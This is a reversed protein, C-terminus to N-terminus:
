HVSDDDPPQAPALEPAVLGLAVMNEHMGRVMEENEAVRLVEECIEEFSYDTHHVLLGGLLGHVHLLVNPTIGKQPDAMLRLIEEFAIAARAAAEVHDEGCDKCAAM